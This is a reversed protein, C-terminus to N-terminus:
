GTDQIRRLEIITHALQEDTVGARQAADRLRQRGDEISLNDLSAIVSTAIALDVDERLLEPAREALQRTSFPLDANAVAGPAWADFIRALAEHHGDFADPTSAYLNISGGVQGSVIVPLTLTSAVSAAATAHAFLQWEEESLLEAQEYALVREAKVADVCPGGGIYQVADLLAIENATAVVTFTVQDANSAVSVGLCQPVLLQVRHAKDLLERLLDEDEITFPGFDAIVRATRPIPEV